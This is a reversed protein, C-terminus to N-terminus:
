SWSFTGPVFGVGHDHRAPDCTRGIRVISSVSQRMGGSPVNPEDSKVASETLGAKSVGVAARGLRTSDGHRTRVTIQTDSRGGREVVYHGTDLGRCPVSCASAAKAPRRHEDALRTEKVRKSDIAGCRARTVCRRAESGPVILKGDRVRDRPGDAHARTGVASRLPAEAM